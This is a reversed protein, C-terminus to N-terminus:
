ENEPVTTRHCLNWGSGESVPRSPSKRVNRELHAKVQAIFDRPGLLPQGGNNLGITYELHSRIPPKYVEGVKPDM